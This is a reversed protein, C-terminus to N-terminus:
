KTLEMYLDYLRRDGFRALIRSAAEDAVAVSKPDNEGAEKRLRALRRLAYETFQETTYFIKKYQHVPNLAYKLWVLIYSININM